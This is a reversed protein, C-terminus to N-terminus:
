RSDTEIMPGNARAKARDNETLDSWDLVACPDPDREGAYAGVRCGLSTEIPRLTVNGWHTIFSTSTM